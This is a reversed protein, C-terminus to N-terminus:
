PRVYQSTQKHWVFGLQNARVAVSRRAKKRHEENAFATYESAATNIQEPQEMESVANLFDLLAGQEDTM